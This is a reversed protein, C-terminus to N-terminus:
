GWDKVPPGEEEETGTHHEDTQETEQRVLLQPEDQIGKREEVSGNSDAQGSKPVVSVLGLQSHQQTQSDHTVEQGVGDHGRAEEVDGAEVIWTSYISKNM